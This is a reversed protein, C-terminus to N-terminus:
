SFVDIIYRKILAFFIAFVFLGYAFEILSIRWLLTLLPVEKEFFIRQILVYYISNGATAVAFLPIIFVWKYRLFRRSAYSISIGLLLYLLSHTGLPTVSNLDKLLGCFISFLIVRDIQFSHYFCFVTLLLMVSNPKVSFVAFRNFFAAEFIALLIAVFYFEIVRM